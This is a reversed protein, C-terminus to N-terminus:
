RGERSPALCRPCSNSYACLWNRRETLKTEKMSRSKGADVFIAFRLDLELIQHVLQFEGKALQNTVRTVGKKGHQREGNANPGGGSYEPKDLANQQRWRGVR